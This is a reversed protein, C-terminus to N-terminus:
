KRGGRVWIMLVYITGAVALLTLCGMMTLAMADVLFGVTSVNM